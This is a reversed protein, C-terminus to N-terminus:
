GKVGEGRFSHVGTGRLGGLVKATERARLVLKKARANQRRAFDRAQKARKRAVVKAKIQEHTLHALRPNDRREKRAEMSDSSLDWGEDSGEAQQASLRAALCPRLPGAPLSTSVQQCQVGFYGVGLGRLGKVGLGRFGKM